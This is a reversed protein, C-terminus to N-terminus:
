LGADPAVARGRACGARGGSVHDGLAVGYGERPLVGRVSLGGQCDDYPDAGGACDFGVRGVSGRAPHGMEKPRLLTGPEFRGEGVDALAKAGVTMGLLYCASVAVPVSARLGFRQGLLAAILAHVGIGVYYVISAAAPWM